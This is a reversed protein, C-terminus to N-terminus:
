LRGRERSVLSTEYYSATRPPIVQHAPRTRTIPTVIFGHLAAAGVRIVVALLRTYKAPQVSGAAATSFLVQQETVLVPPPSLQQSDQDVPSSAPAVAKPESVAPLVTMEITGQKTIELQL